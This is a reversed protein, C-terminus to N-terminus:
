SPNIMMKELVGFLAQPLQAVQQVVCYQDCLHRVADTVIGIAAIEIGEQRTRTAARQAMNMDDPYGDTILLIIKRSEPRALLAARAYWLGQDTPTSGGPSVAFAEEQPKEGFDCVLSVDASGLGGFVASAVQVGALHYLATHLAFASANAITSYTRPGSSRIMSGSCDVLVVVATNLATVEEKKRFIRPDGLAMRVLRRQDIRRGSCGATQLRRQQGQLLILLRARLRSSTALAESVDVADRTQQSPMVRAVAPLLPVTQLAEPSTQSALENLDDLLASSRDGYDSRGSNIIEDIEQETPQPSPLTIPAKDASSDPGSCKDEPPDSKQQQGESPTSDAPSDGPSTASNQQQPQQSQSSSDADTDEKAGQKAQAPSGEENQPVQKLRDVIRQALLQSDLTSALMLFDQKLLLELDTGFASGLARDLMTRCTTLLEKVAQHQLIEGYGYALVLGLLATTTNTPTLDGKEAYYTTVAELDYRTGPRDQVTLAEVRVDEIINTLDGLLGAPRDGQTHKKHAVEHFVLGTMLLRGLPTAPMRAINITHGDTSCYSNDGGVTITLHTDNGLTRALGALETDRLM